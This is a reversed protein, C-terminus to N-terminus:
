LENPWQGNTQIYKIQKPSLIHLIEGLIKSTSETTYCTFIIYTGKKVWVTNKFKSPMSILGTKPISGTDIYAVQFNGNGKNTEIKGVIENPSSPLPFLTLTDQQIKIARKGCLAM